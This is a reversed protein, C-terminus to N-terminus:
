RRELSRARFHLMRTDALSLRPSFYQEIKFIGLLSPQSTPTYSLQSLVQRALLPDPTRNEEDGGDQDKILFDTRQFSYLLLFRFFYKVRFTKQRVSPSDKLCCSASADQSALFTLTHIKCLNLYYSCVTSAKAIDASSPRSLSRFAATLHLHGKVRLHGFPAIRSHNHVTM